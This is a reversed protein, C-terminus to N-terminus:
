KHAQHNGKKLNNSVSIDADDPCGTIVINATDHSGPEGADTFTFSITAGEVGNCRGTGEGIYTDFNAPSPPWDIGPADICTASTLEEMHFHNGNWNVELNNPAVEIDCHLEFGHTVRTGGKSTFVSGGGTMRGSAPACSPDNEPDFVNSCQGTAPVCSDDTCQEQDDCNRPQSSVCANATEDCSETTCLDADAACPHASHQCVNSVCLDDTCFLTDDCQSNTTCQVVDLNLDKSADFGSGTPSDLLKGKTLDTPTAGVNVRATATGPVTTLTVVCSLGANAICGGSGTSNWCTNGSGDAPFNGTTTLV